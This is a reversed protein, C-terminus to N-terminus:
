HGAAPSGAPLESAVDISMVDLLWKIAPQTRNNLDTFHEKGSILMLNTRALSDLPMPRGNHMVPLRGFADLQPENTRQSPQALAIAVGIYIVGLGCVAWPVYDSLKNMGGDEGAAGLVEHPAAWFPHDHRPQGHHVLHVADVLGSQPRSAAGHHGHARRAGHRAHRKPF